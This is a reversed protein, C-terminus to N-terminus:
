ARQATVITEYRVHTIILNTPPIYFDEVGEFPTRIIQRQEM